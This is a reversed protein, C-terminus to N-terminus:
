FYCKFVDNLFFDLCVGMKLHFNPSPFKTASKFTVIHVCRYVYGFHKIWTWNPLNFIDLNLFMKKFASHWTALGEWYHCCRQSTKGPQSHEQFIYTFFINLNFCTRVVLTHFSNIVLIFAQSFHKYGFNVWWIWLCPSDLIIINHYTGPSKCRQLFVAPYLECCNETQFILHLRWNLFM